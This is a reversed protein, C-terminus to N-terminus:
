VVFARWGENGKLWSELQQRSKISLTEDSCSKADNGNCNYTTTDRKDGPVAENLETEWRDLRLITAM